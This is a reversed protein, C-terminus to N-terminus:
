FLLSLQYIYNGIFGAIILILLATSPVKMKGTFLKDSFIFMLGLLPVSLLMPHLRFSEAFNGNIFAFLARTMGCSLCPIGFVRKILCGTEFLWMFVVCLLILGLILIRKFM